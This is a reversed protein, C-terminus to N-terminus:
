GKRPTSLFVGALTLFAGLAGMMSLREGLFAFAILATVVPVSYIAVTASVTGLDRCARNWMVFCMASALVGLFSLNLLNNLSGLRAANAEWALNVHLAGGLMEPSTRAGVVLLPMMWLISWFFIRRTSALANHNRANIRTLVTSYLAWSVASALAIVDGIPSWHFERSGNLCVMVVGTIAVLFGVLFRPSLTKERLFIRSSIATLMPCVSILISVNTANTFHIATNELLQYSTVGFFGALLYLVEDRHSELRLRKPCLAWLLVYAMFYRIFLIEFASFDTLLAKTSVFTAGWILIVPVALSLGIIQKKKM